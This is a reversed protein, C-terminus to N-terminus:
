ANRLAQMAEPYDHWKGDILILPLEPKGHGERMTREVMVDAAGTARWADMNSVDVFTFRREMLALKVKAKECMECGPKGYLTIM